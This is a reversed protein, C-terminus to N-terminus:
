ARYGVLCFPVVRVLIVYEHGEFEDRVEGLLLNPVYPPAFPDRKKRETPASANADAATTPDASFDPTPLTPKDQLAPCLRIEFQTRHTIRISTLDSHACWVPRNM